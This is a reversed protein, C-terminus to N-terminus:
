PKIDRHVIGREHAYALASAVNRLIRVAHPIPLEGRDVLSRLSQGDVFPMAFWPMAGAQGAALLPVIHPHQLRAALAIEREFRARAAGSMLDAPLVKIVVARDLRRERALFVRSMGGGGLERELQYDPALADQLDPPLTM